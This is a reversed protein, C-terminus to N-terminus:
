SKDGTSNEANSEKVEAATVHEITEPKGGRAQLLLGNIQFRIRPHIKGVYIFEDPDGLIGVPDGDSTVIVPMVLKFQDKPLKQIETKSMTKM